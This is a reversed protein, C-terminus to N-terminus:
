SQGRELGRAGVGRPMFKALDELQQGWDKLWLFTGVGKAETVQMIPKYTGGGQEEGERERVCVHKHHTHYM